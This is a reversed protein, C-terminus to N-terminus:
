RLLYGPEGARVFRKCGGGPSKKFKLHLPHAGVPIKNQSTPDTIVKQLQSLRIYL